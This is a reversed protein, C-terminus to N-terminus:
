SQRRAKIRAAIKCYLFSELCFLAFAASLYLILGLKGWLAGVPLPIGLLWAAGFVLLVDALFVITWLLIHPVTDFQNPFMEKLFLNKKHQYM